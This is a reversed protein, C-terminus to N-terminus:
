FRARVRVGYNQPYLYGTQVVDSSNNNGRALVAEDELNEIFAEVAYANTPDDWRLRLDTKTFSDQLQNPDPSYLNSTFYEDSYYFSIGPTLTGNEGLDIEYDGQLNFTLEPSWPTTEGSVSISPVVEGGFLQYPNGQFFDDGFESDLYALTGSLRLEPVPFYVAELEIGWADIQGGNDSSTVAIGGIIDQRQRLLNTYETVHVAGNFLLTDDLLNSKFGAEIVQSEQEDTASGGNSIAGSLFGTAANFYLLVDDNYDYEAGLRWSVNDFSVDGRIADDAGVNLAFVTNPNTPVVAPSPNDLVQQTFTVPAEVTGDGDTDGTFNSGAGVLTRSEDNFRLGGVVRFQDTISWEAQGFVGFYEIERVGVDAFEGGPIIIDNSAIPTGILLPFDAGGPGTVTPRNAIEATHDILAFSFFSEDESYYAGATWQIPSDYDSAFLFEQSFSENEENFWFRTHGTPSFDGDFGLLNAFDTYASISKLTVPGFDYNVELSFQQQELDGEPAFDQAVEYPGLDDASPAGSSGQLPNACDQFDGLPDTLGQATVNRCEFTYGFLGAEVGRETVNSYRALIELEPTPEWLVSIRGGIDDPAGLDAGASNDIYGDGNETFAAIRVGLTDTLPVNAFGEVRRTNFREYSADVGASFGSLDPANTYLNLAGAFTNRGYLTGQPGKLFELRQVDFFGRSQMSARPQYVGDVFTGVISSVDGFTNTSNAGRVNFKADNGVFAFNVGSVIQDLRSVDDVGARDLGAEDFAQVSQGVDQTTEARREATVTIVGLKKEDEGPADQAIAPAAFTVVSIAAVSTLFGTSRLKM